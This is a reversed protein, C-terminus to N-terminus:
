EETLIMLPRAPKYSEYAAGDAVSFLVLSTTGDTSFAVSGDIEEKWFRMDSLGPMLANCEAPVALENLGEGLVPGKILTCAASGAMLRFQGPAISGTAMSDTNGPSKAFLPYRSLAAATTLVVLAAFAGVVIRMGLGM